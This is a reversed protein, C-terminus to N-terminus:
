EGRRLSVRRRNIRVAARGALAVTAGICIWAFLDGVSSYVTRTGETPVYAVMTQRKTDFYDSAALTRGQHDYAVSLGRNAQRVVSYGNEVARFIANQAHLEKIGEWNNAGVLVIGVGGRGAQRMLAPFDADYCIAGSLRGFTADEVPLVGNGPAYPELVPVPRAKRYTWAVRGEPDVLVAENRVGPSGGEYVTLGADVYVREESALDEIRRLLAEEDRGMVPAASEPWLVLRAGAKAEREASALLDDHVGGFARRLVPPDAEVMEKVSDFPRLAPRMGDWAERSPSVGAVRVAEGEPQFFAMRAGGLLMVGALVCGCVAVPFRVEPWSFGGEWAHAATSGFWAVLFSVGYVGTVSAVQVLPLNGHQTTGLVGFVTGFPTLLAVAFECAVKASPFVLTSLMPSRASIRTSIWRDLVFPLALFPTWALGVLLLPASFLEESQYQWFATGLCASIWVWFAAVWPRSARSFRLLFVPFLWAALPVDWKGHVAFLSLAIGAVLWAYRRSRVVGTKGDRKASASRPKRPLFTM